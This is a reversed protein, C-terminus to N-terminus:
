YLFQKNNSVFRLWKPLVISKAQAPGIKSHKRRDGWAWSPCQASEAYPREHGSLTGLGLVQNGTKKLSLCPVTVNEKGLCIKPCGLNITHSISETEDLLLELTVKFLCIYVSFPTVPVVKLPLRDNVKRVPSQTGLQCPNHGMQTQTKTVPRPQAYFLCGYHRQLWYSIHLLVSSYYM